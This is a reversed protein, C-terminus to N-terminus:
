KLRRIELEKELKNIKKDNNVNKLASFTAALALGLGLGAIVYIGKNRYKKEMSEYNESNLYEVIFKNESLDNELIKEKPSKYNSIILVTAVSAGVCFHLFSKYLGRRQYCKKLQKMKYRNESIEEEIM